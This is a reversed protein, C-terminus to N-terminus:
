AIAENITATKKYLWRKFPLRGSAEIKKFLKEFKVKLVQKKEYPINEKIKFLNETFRFLNYYRRYRDKNIMKNRMLYVKFATTHAEFARVADTEFYVRLLMARANLKYILNNYEINVLLDHAKKYNNTECYYVALNYNYANNKINQPLYLQYKEIFNRAWKYEKLGLATTILNQYSLHTMVGNDILFGKELMNKQIEFIHSFFQAKGENIKRAAFNMLNVYIDAGDSRDFLDIHKEVLACLEFYNEEDNADVLSKYIKYYVNLVIENTYKNCNNIHHNISDILPYKYAISKNRGKLERERNMMGSSQYLKEIIYHTDLADVKQQMYFSKSFDLNSLYWEDLTNIMKYKLYYEDAHKFNDPLALIDEIKRRAKEIRKDMKKAILVNLLDLHSSMENRNRYENILMEELLSLTTSFLRRLQVYNFKSNPYIHQFISEKNCNKNNFNCFHILLYETLIKVQKSSNYYPSQVFLLFREVEKKSLKSLSQILSSKLM